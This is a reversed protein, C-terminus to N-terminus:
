ASEGLATSIIGEVTQAVSSDAGGASAASQSAHAHHHGGHGHHQGQAQGANPTLDAVSGSQAAAGFRDALKNLHEAASGTQSAAADKLQKAIEATVAKFKEPDSQALSSLDSLLQGRKSIDVTESSGIASADTAGSPQAAGSRTPDINPSSFLSSISGISM